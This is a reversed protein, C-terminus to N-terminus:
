HGPPWYFGMLPYTRDHVEDHNSPLCIRDTTPIVFYISLSTSLYNSAKTETQCGAIKSCSSCQIIVTYHSYLLTYQIYLVSQLNCDTCFVVARSIVPVRRRSWMVVTSRSNRQSGVLSRTSNLTAHRTWWDSDPWIVAAEHGVASHSRYPWSIKRSADYWSRVAAIAGSGKCGSSYTSGTQSVRKRDLQAIWVDGVSQKALLQLSM